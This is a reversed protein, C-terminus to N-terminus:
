SRIKPNFIEDMGTNMMYLSFTIIAISIAAPIFAWWAGAVPAEFVLAWNMIIGLSITNYPGLGLMSISAESLIGSATQLVFAMVVYSAIYPLIESLIIRPTSYGSIKAINVHDRNRLSSTQARVARATWPWSTIGIIVATVFSSRSDISVSILILIVFSPIVIFINTIATLLNDIMGGIYGSALGIVLGIVTAFVGAILGVQLSTRIGYILELFLDRGFNDSGLLLKSDPPQYALAIMELPDNRNFLPYILILGIMALLMCAGFMFKPSKILIRFSSNM